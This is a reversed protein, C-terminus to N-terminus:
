YAGLASCVGAAMGGAIVGGAAGATGGLFGGLVAGPVGGLGFTAAGGAGGGAIAGFFAGKTAGTEMWNEVAGQPSSGCVYWVGWHKAKQLLPNSAPQTGNNPSCSKSGNSSSSQGGAAMPRGRRFSGVPDPNSGGSNVGCICDPGDCPQPDNLQPDSFAQEVQEAYEAEWQAVTNLVESSIQSPPPACYAGCPDFNWNSSWGGADTGLGGPADGGGPGNCFGQYPDDLCTRENLGLPDVNSLPSNGVYAYRNWSQPKGPRVAALGARDPSIWRGQVPSYRRYLFDFQGNETDAGVGTFTNTTTGTQSYWEGFSAYAGSYYFTRSPTSVFRMSGLWDPHRYSALGSSGYAAVAGGPLPVYIKTPTGATIQALKQTGGPAYLEQVYTGSILREVARDLADYTITIGDVAIQNGDADWSYQHMYDSNISTLNGNADYAVSPIGSQIQNNPQGSSPTYGAVFSISDGSPKTINGFADYTFAQYWLQTSGALCNTSAARGLDDSTYTCAQSDTTGSFPDTITLSGLSGNPNWFASGTFSQGNVQYQYSTMRGTYPDYGFTDQDLSGYNLATVQSAPNYSTSLVPNQGSNASVSYTRGEGDVGYTITPFASIGVLSLTNLVGNAWYSTNVHYYGGSNPTMEYVDTTEGRVSYSFGLDTIKSLGAGTYAEALHGKANAMAAGNVTASDYVYHKAPTNASYAGSPYTVATPRHLLDYATCTVNGVADVKKVLDGNSIGCTTDTDYTYTTTGNEPNIEQTLRGLWDYAYTRTQQSHHGAQANQVVSVIEDLPNYTYKTWYGTQSVNQGCTGSGTGTTLECVSALRGLGDYEYQRQKLHEGSPAPGKTILRDNQTFLSTKYGGGADSVEVKRSLADYSFTTGPGSSNTQGQSGSFPLSKFNQRGLSDYAYSVTDFTSSGPAQRAQTTLTRGLPDLTTLVDVASSGFPTDGEVSAPVGSSAPTYTYTTVNTAADTSSYPRWFYPDTYAASTTNNNADKATLQVGGTCNWTEQITLGTPGTISSPFAYGCSSGYTYSTPYASTNVDFANQVLGTDYYTYTSSLWTSSSTLRSITTPNGRSGTVPILQPAGSPTPTGYDYYYGTSAVTNGSGDKVVISSPRNVIGNELIFYSTVTERLLYTASPLAGLTVGYDYERDDNVLGSGTFSGNYQVESARTKGNYPQAYSDIQTIPSTVTATSCSTFSANYCRLKTMLVNGPAVSGQYAVRQTEYMNYTAATTSTTTLSDEAFNMVTYNSQPDVVTTIWTSGPGPQQGTQLQRSYVWPGGPSVTRTLGSTSGDSYIGTGNAGGSYAYTISGGTPLTIGSIRGTVCNTAYTGQLPTCSGPTQEYSFWYSTGDPLSISSVLNVGSTGPGYESIGSIGFNTKVTYSTYNVTYSATNTSPATYTYKTPSSPTGSGTQILVPTTSSLTDFYQGSANLSLQNGNSDTYTVGSPQGNSTFGGVVGGSVSTVTDGNTPTASITYGSGDM